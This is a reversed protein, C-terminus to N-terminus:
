YQPLPVDALPDVMTVDIEAALQELQKARWANRLSCRLRPTNAYLSNSPNVTCLEMIHHHILIHEAPAFVHFCWACFHRGCGYCTIDCCDRFDTIMVGCCPAKLTVSARIRAMQENGLAEQQARERENQEHARRAGEEEARTRIYERLVVPDAVRQIESDDFALGCGEVSCILKVGASDRTAAELMSNVHDTCIGHMNPCRIDARESDVVTYSLRPTEPVCVQCLCGRIVREMNTNSSSLRTNSSRLTDM